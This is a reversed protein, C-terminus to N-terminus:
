PRGLGRNASFEAKRDYDTKIEQELSGAVLSLIALTISMAKKTTRMQQGREETFETGILAWGELGSLARDSSSTQTRELM